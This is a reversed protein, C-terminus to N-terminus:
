INKTLVKKHENSMEARCENNLLIRKNLHTAITPVIVELSYVEKDTLDSDILLRQIIRQNFLSSYNRLPTTVHAYVELGIGYHGKNIASYSSDGFQTTLPGILDHYDQKNTIINNVDDPIIIDKKENIRYIFPCGKTEVMSALTYNTLVKLESVIINGYGNKYQDMNQKEPNKHEKSKIYEQRIKNKENLTNAFDYLVQMNHNKGTAVINDIDKYSYRKSVNIMANQIDMKLIEYDPTVEFFYAQVLKSNDMNLSCKNLSIEEPLMPVNNKYYISSGLNYAYKDIESGPKVVANVDAIYEAILYNGNPLTDISIADDMCITDAADITFINNKDRYDYLNRYKTTKIKKIEKEMKTSYILNLKYKEELTIDKFSCVKIIKSIDKTLLRKANIDLNTDEKITDLSISLRDIIKDKVPEIDYESSTLLMFIMYYYTYTKKDDGLLSKLYYDTIKPGLVTINDNIYQKFEPYKQLIENLRTFDNKEFLLYNIIIENNSDDLEKVPVEKPKIEPKKVLIKKDIHDLKMYIKNLFNMFSEDKIDQRMLQEIRDLVSELKWTLPDNPGIYIADVINSIYVITNKLHKFSNTHSFENMNDLDVDILSILDNLVDYYTAFGGLAQLQGMKVKRPNVNNMIDRLKTKGM